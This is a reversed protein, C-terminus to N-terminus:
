KGGEELMKKVTGNERLKKLNEDKLFELMRIREDRILRDISGNLIVM